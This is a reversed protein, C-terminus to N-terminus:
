SCPCGEAEKRLLINVAVSKDITCETKGVRLVMQDGIRELVKLKAEPKINKEDLLHFNVHEEDIICCVVYREGLEAETLAICPLEEIKGDETPIPNGHPCFKPHGLKEDLLAAVNKTLAHELKCADEHVNSWEAELVDTLLREALRHKRIIDLAIKEGKRTLKVGRYPEHTVLGLNELHGITNTISGPVVHMTQSLEKTKAMGSRKQLKYITELYEEAEQSLQTEM